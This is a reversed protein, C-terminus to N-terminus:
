QKRPTREALRRRLGTRMRASAGPLAALHHLEDPQLEQRTALALVAAYPRTTSSLLRAEIEAMVRLLVERDANPHEALLRLLLGDNWASDRKSSLDALVDVPTRPNSALAQWVFPYPCRALHLFTQMDTHLASAADLYDAPTRFRPPVEDHEGMGM